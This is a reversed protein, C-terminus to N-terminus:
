REVIEIKTPKFKWAANTRGEDILGDPFCTRYTTESKPETGRECHKQLQSKRDLQHTILRAERHVPKGRKHPLAWLGPRRVGKVSIPNAKIDAIIEDLAKQSEKEVKLTEMRKVLEYDPKNIIKQAEELRGLLLGIRETAEDMTKPAEYWREDVLKTQM